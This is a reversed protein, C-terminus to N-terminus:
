TITELFAINFAGKPGRKGFVPGFKTFYGLPKDLTKEAKSLNGVM